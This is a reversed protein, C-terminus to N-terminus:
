VELPQLCGDVLAATGEPTALQAAFCAPDAFGRAFADAVPQRTSAQGLLDLIHPPPPELFANTWGSVPGAFAWLEDELGAAFGEDVAEAGALASAMEWACHSGINAGQGTIPDNVVWADGLALAHRGDPLRAGGHRVTPSVSGRLVHRPGLPGFRGADVMARIAPAYTDLLALLQGTFAAPGDAWADHSITDLPGGPVAEILISSVVGRESLFPQQFIEGAGPVLNFSVAPPEDQVVGAYLGGLLRRRPAGAPTRDTRVGFLEAALPSSGGTAVVVADHGATRAVLEAQDAPPPGTVVAGGRQGYDEVLRSLYVRFDVGRAPRDLRGRFGLPTGVVDVAIAWSAAGEVEDWHAVGLARERDQTAPFRAVLNGIRGRRQEAPSREAFLTTAVGLQQLRLALTVGSIGTGVIAVKRM